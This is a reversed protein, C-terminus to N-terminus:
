FEWLLNKVEICKKMENSKESHKKVNQLHQRYSSILQLLWKYSFGIEGAPM